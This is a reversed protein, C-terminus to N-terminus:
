KQKVLKLGGIREADRAARLGKVQIGPGWPTLRSWTDRKVWRGEPSARTVWLFYDFYGAGGASSAQLEELEQKIAQLYASTSGGASSGRM